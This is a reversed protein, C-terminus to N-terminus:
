YLVRVTYDTYKKLLKPIHKVLCHKIQNDVLNKMYITLCKNERDYDFEETRIVNGTSLEQWVMCLGIDFSEKVHKSPLDKTVIINVNSYKSKYSNFLTGEYSSDLRFEYKDLFLPFRRGPECESEQIYVDIDGFEVELINDRIYGGAIISNKTRKSVAEIIEWDLDKISKDM